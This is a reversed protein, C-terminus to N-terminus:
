PNIKIYIMVTYIYPTFDGNKHTNRSDLYTFSRSLFLLGQKKASGQVGLPGYWCFTNDYSEFHVLMYGTLCLMVPTLKSSVWIYYLSMVTLRLEASCNNIKACCSIEKRLSRPESLKLPIDYRFGGCPSLLWRGTKWTGNFFLIAIFNIAWIM